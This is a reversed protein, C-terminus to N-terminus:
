QTKYKPQQQFILAGRHGNTCRTTYGVSRREYASGAKQFNLEQLIQDKEKQPIKSTVEITSYEKGDDAANFSFRITSGNPHSFVTYSDQPSELVYGYYECTSAFAASDPLETLIAAVNIPNAEIKLTKAQVHFLTFLIVLLPLLIKKM